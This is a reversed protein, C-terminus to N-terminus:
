RYAAEVMSFMQSDKTPLALLHGFEEKARAVETRTVLEKMPLVAANPAWSRVDNRLRRAQDLHMMVVNFSSTQAAQRLAGDSDVLTVKHGVGNLMGRLKGMFEVVAADNSHQYILINAPRAARQMRQLRPSRTAVLFKAGCAELLPVGLHACATVVVIGMALRRM